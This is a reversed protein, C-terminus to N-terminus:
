AHDDERQPATADDAYSRQPAPPSIWSAAFSADQWREHVYGDGFTQSQPASTDHNKPSM